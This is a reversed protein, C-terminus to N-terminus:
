FIVAPKAFNETRQLCYSYLPALALAPHQSFGNLVKGWQGTMAWLFQSGFHWSRTISNGQERQWHYKNGLIQNLEVRRYQVGTMLGGMQPLCHPIWALHLRDTLWAAWGRVDELRGDEGPMAWAVHRPHFCCHDFCAHKRGMHLKHLSTLLNNCIILEMTLRARVTRSVCFM